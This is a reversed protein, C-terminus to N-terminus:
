YEKKEVIRRSISYSLFIGAFSLVAFLAVIGLIMLDSIRDLTSCVLDAHNTFLTLLAMLPVLWIVIYLFRGREGRFRYMLPLLIDAMLLGYGLIFFVNMVFDTVSEGRTLVLAGGCFLMVVSIGLVLTLVFGYRARVVTERGVPLTMAYVDWKAVEDGFFLNVPITMSMVLAFCSIVSTSFLGAFSMAMYVLFTLGCGWFTKRSILFDKWVLGKVIVTEGKRVRLPDSHTGERSCPGM